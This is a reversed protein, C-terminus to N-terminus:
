ITRASLGGATQKRGPLTSHLIRTGAVAVFEIHCRRLKAGASAAVCLLIVCVSPSAHWTASARASIDMGIAIMPLTRANRSGSDKQGWTGVRQEAGFLTWRRHSWDGRVKGKGVIPTWRREPATGDGIAAVILGLHMSRCRAENEFVQWAVEGTHLLMRRPTHSWSKASRTKGDARLQVREQPFYAKGTLTSSSSVRQMGSGVAQRRATKARQRLATAQMATARWQPERSGTRGM